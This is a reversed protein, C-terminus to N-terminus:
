WVAGSNKLLRAIAEALKRYGQANPHVYDSKLGNDALISKLADKEIPLKLEEAARQYFKAPALFIGPEPVAVLVVAIRRQQALKVMARLNAEAQDAGLKQLLDNGGHCLILLKPRFEDLAEPLRALGESTVEGPVGARAVKRGILQELIAPYSENAEAGTGFTLSDGFALVVAGRPLAPLTPRGCAILALALLASVQRLLRMTAQYASVTGSVGLTASHNLYVMAFIAEIRSGCRM